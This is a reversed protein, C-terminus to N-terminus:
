KQHGYSMYKRIVGGYLTVEGFFPLRTPNVVGFLTITGDQMDFM